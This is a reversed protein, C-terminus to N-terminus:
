FSWHLDDQSSGCCSCWAVSVIFENPFQKRFDFSFYPWKKKYTSMMVCCLSLWKGKSSYVSRSVNTCRRKSYSSHGNFTNLHISSRALSLALPNMPPPVGSLEPPEDVFMVTCRNRRIVLGSRRWKIVLERTCMSIHYFNRGNGLHIYAHTQTRIFACGLTYVVGLATVTFQRQIDRGGSKFSPSPLSRAWLPVTVPRDTVASTQREWSKRICYKCSM